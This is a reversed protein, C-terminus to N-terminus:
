WEMGSGTVRQWEGIGGAGGDDDHRDNGGPKVQDM